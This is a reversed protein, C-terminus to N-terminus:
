QTPCGNDKLWQMLESIKNNDISISISLNLNYDKEEEVSNFYSSDLSWNSVLNDKVAFYVSSDLECGEKVLWKLLEFNRGQIAGICTKSDWIYGKDHMWKIIHVRNFRAAESYTSSVDLPCGNEVLWQLCELHGSIAASLSTVYDWYCNHKKLLKLMNLHGYNAAASFTDNDIICNSELLWEMIETNGNEAVYVSIYDDMECGNNNLFKLMRFQNVKAALVLTDKNWKCGHSRVLVFMDINGGIVAHSCSNINNEDIPDYMDEDIERFLDSGYEMALKLLEIQGYITLVRVIIKNQPGLYYNPIKDFYLDNCLELTFKEVCYNNPFEFYKIILTSEQKQIISKTITNYSKCTQTFQRKDTIKPIYVVIITIIELPLYLM